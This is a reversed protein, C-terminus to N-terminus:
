KDWGEPKNIPGFSKIRDVIEWDLEGESNHFWKVKVFAHDAKKRREFRSGWGRWEMEESLGEDSPEVGICINMCLEEILDDISGSNGGSGFMRYKKPYYVVTPGDFDWGDDWHVARFETPLLKLDNM